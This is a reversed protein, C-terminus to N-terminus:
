GPPSLAAAEGCASCGPRRALPIERFRARLGDVTLLRGTLPVGFGALLKIAECAELSGMLGALAGVVGAEACTPCAGAPPPNEFLCRYCGGAGPIVTMVQGDFRLIGATVLPVREAVCADNALFKTEFNDSGEIVVDHERVLARADEPTFRKALARVQTGSGLRALREAAQPAKFEGVDSTGFLIQRQLNSLAVQDHDIITLIGVGAAALYLAAPSGLGGAGILLIRGRALREQAAEGLEPMGLHDAFRRQQSKSLM